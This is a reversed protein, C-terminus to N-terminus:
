IRINKLFVKKDNKNDANCLHSKTCNSKDLSIFPPLESPENTIEIPPNVSSTEPEEECKHFNSEFDIKLIDKDEENTILFEDYPPICNNSYDWENAYTSKATM